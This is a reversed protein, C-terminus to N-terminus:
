LLPQYNAALLIRELLNSVVSEVTVDVLSIKAFGKLFLSNHPFAKGM